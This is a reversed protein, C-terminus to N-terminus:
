IEELEVAWRNAIWEPQNLVVSGGMEMPLMDPLIGYNSLVKLIESEPVDHFLTRCRTTKTKLAMLIRLLM